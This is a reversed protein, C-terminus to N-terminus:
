MCYVGRANSCRSGEHQRQEAGREGCIAAVACSFASPDVNPMGKWRGAESVRSAGWSWPPPACTAQRQRMCAAGQPRAAPSPLRQWARTHATSSCHHPLCSLLPCCAQEHSLLRSTSAHDPITCPLIDAAGCGLSALQQSSGEGSRHAPTPAPAPSSTSCAQPCAWRHLAPVLSALAQHQVRGLWGLCTALACLLQTAREGGACHGGAGPQDPLCARLAEARVHQRSGPRPGGADPCPNHLLLHLSHWPLQPPRDPWAAIGALLCAAVACGARFLASCKLGRFRCAGELNIPTVSLELSHDPGACPHLPANSPPWSAHDGCPCMYVVPVGISSAQECAVM